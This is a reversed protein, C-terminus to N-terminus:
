QGADSGSAPGDQGFDPESDVGRRTAEGQASDSQFEYLIIQGANTQCCKVPRRDDPSPLMRESYWQHDYLEIQRRNHLTRAVVLWKVGTREAYTAVKDLSDDPLIRFGAGLLYADLPAPTFVVDGEQIFERLPAYFAPDVSYAKEFRASATTVSLGSPPPMLLAVCLATRRWPARLIAVMSALVCVEVAIHLVLFPLVVIIYRKILDTILSVALIYFWVWASLMLRRQWPAGRRRFLLPTLSTIVFLTFLWSKSQKQLSRTNELLREFVGFPQTAIRHLIKELGSRDVDPSSSSVALNEYMETADPLLKRMMRRSRYLSAYDEEAFEQIRHIEELVEPDDSSVSYIGMRFTRQLPHQGTQSFLGIAWPGSILLFGALVAAGQRTISRSREGRATAATIAVWILAFALLFLGAPRALFALGCLLGVAVTSRTEGSETSRGLVLLALATLLVFLTETLPTFAYGFLPSLPILLAAFVAVVRGTVDRILLAFPIGALILSTSSIWSAVRLLDDCFFSGLGILLPYLPPLILGVDIHGWSAIYLAANTVMERGLTAYAIPDPSSVRLIGVDFFWVIPNAVLLIALCALDPWRKMELGLNRM